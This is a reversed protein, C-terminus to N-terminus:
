LGSVDIDGSVMLLGEHNELSLDSPTLTVNVGQEDITVPPLTYLNIAVGKVESEVKSSIESSFLNAISLVCTFIDNVPNWTLKPTLTVSLDPVSDITVKLTTDDISVTTNVVLPDPSYSIDYNVEGTKLPGSM